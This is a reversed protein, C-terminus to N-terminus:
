TGCGREEPSRDPRPRRGDAGRDPCALVVIFVPPRGEPPARDSPGLRLLGAALVAAAMALATRGAGSREGVCRARCGAPPARPLRAQGTARRGSDRHSLCPRDLPASAGSRHESDVGGGPTSRPRARHPSAWPHSFVHARPPRPQDAPSPFFLPRGACNADPAAPGFPPFAHATPVSTPRPRPPARRPSRPCLGREPPIPWLSGSRPRSGRPAARWPLACWLEEVEVAVPEREAIAQGIMEGINQRPGSRAPRCRTRPSSTPAGLSFSPLRHTREYMRLNLPPVM